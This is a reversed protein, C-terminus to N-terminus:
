GNMPSCPEVRPIANPTIPMMGNKSTEDITSAIDGDSKHIGNVHSRNIQNM